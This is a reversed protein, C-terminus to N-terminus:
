EREEGDRCEEHHGLVSGMRETRERIQEEERTGEEMQEMASVPPLAGIVGSMVSVVRLVVV